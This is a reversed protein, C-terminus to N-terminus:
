VRLIQLAKKATSGSLEDVVADAGGFDQYAVHDRVVAMSAMGAILAAKVGYGSGTVALSASHWLRGDHCARRWSDWRLAGYVDSAERYLKVRGNLLPAFATQVIAIDARTAIVVKLGKDTLTRVFNRFSATVAQPAAATVAARYADALDRAAKQATKKTKVETFLAALGTLFPKGALYKAEVAVDLAIGDLERLLTRATDFLLAAGDMAAFDFEVVVGKEPM